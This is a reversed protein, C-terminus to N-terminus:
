VKGEQTKFVTQLASLIRSHSGCRCLNHQLAHKPDPTKANSLEDYAAMVIGPLCYGCQAADREILAETIQKGLATQVISEVTEVKNNELSAISVQCAQTATGDVLVTCAGCNGTACGQKCGTILLENRLYALLSQHSKADVSVDSGDVIIPICPSKQQNSM